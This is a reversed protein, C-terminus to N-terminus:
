GSRVPCQLLAPQFDFSQLVLLGSHVATKPNSIASHPLGDAGINCYIVILPHVFDFGLHNDRAALTSGAHNWSLRPKDPGGFIWWNAKDFSFVIRRQTSFQCPSLRIM